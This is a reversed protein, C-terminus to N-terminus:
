EDPSWCRGAIDGPKVSIFHFVCLDSGKYSDQGSRGCRVGTGAEGAKWREVREDLEDDTEGDNAIIIVSQVGPAVQHELKKLRHKLDARM